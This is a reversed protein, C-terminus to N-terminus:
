EEEASYTEYMMFLVIHDTMNEATAGPLTELLRNRTDEMWLTYGDGEDTSTHEEAYWAAIDEAMQRMEETREARRRQSENLGEVIVATRDPDPVQAHGASALQLNLRNLLQEDESEVPASVVKAMGTDDTVDPLGKKLRGTSARETLWRERWLKGGVRKGQGELSTTYKMLWIYMYRQREPAMETSIDHFRQYFAEDHGCDMSDGEHAVEYETLSFLRSVTILADTKLQRV